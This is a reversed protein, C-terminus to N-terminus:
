LSSDIMVNRRDQCLKVDARTALRASLRDPEPQGACSLYWWSAGSPAPGCRWRGPLLERLRSRDAPSPTGGTEYVVGEVSAPSSWRTDRLRKPSREDTRRRRWRGPALSTAVAGREGPRQRDVPVLRRGPLSVGVIAEGSVCDGSSSGAPGAALVSQPHSRSGLDSRRMGPGWSAPASRRQMLMTITGFATGAGQLEPVRVGRRLICRNWRLVARHFASHGAAM